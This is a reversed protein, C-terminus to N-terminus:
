FLDFVERMNYQTSGEWLLAGILWLIFVFPFIIARKLSPVEHGLHMFEKVIYYAKAITLVFFLITLVAGRSVTFALVFEVLTVASLIATVILITKMKAKHKEEPSLNIDHAM